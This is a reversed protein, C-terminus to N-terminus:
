VPLRCVPQARSRCTVRTVGGYRDGERGRYWGEGGWRVDRVGARGTTREEWVEGQPGRGRSGGRHDEGGLGGYPGRRRGGGTTREGQVWFPGRGM